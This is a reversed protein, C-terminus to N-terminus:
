KIEFTYILSTAAQFYNITVSEGVNRSYINITTSEGSGITLEGNDITLQRTGRCEGDVFAAIRDGDAPTIRAEDLLPAADFATVIPYKTSGLTFQPIFDEDIGVVVDMSYVINASRAFIQKLRSCYYMLTVDIHQGDNENGYAKLLFSPREGDGGGGLTIAPGSVGRLENGVFLAMMDDDSTYPWLADEIQVLMVSFNEFRGAQPEQWDPREQNYTWDITWVPAVATGSMISIVSAIDAVDFTADGNVDAYYAVSGLTADGSMISIVSAIDAVDVTGDANVDGYLRASVTDAAVGPSQALAAVLALAFLINRKM